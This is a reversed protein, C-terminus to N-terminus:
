SNYQKSRVPHPSIFSSKGFSEFQRYEFEGAHISRRLPSRRRKRREGDGYIRLIPVSNRVRENAQVILSNQANSLPHFRLSENIRFAGLYNGLEQIMAFELQADRGTSSGIGFGELLSGM